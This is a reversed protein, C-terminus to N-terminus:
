KVKILYKVLDFLALYLCFRSIIELLMVPLNQLETDRMVALWNYYAQCRKLVSRRENM